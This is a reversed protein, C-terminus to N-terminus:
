TLNDAPMFTHITQGCWQQLNTFSGNTPNYVILLNGHPWVKKKMIIQVTDKKEAGFTYDPLFCAKDNFSIHHKLLEDLILATSPSHTSRFVYFCVESRTQHACVHPSSAAARSQLARTIFCCLIQPSWVHLPWLGKFCSLHSNSWFTVADAFFCLVTSGRLTFLWYLLLVSPGLSCNNLKCPLGWSVLRM